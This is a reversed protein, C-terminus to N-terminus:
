SCVTIDGSCLKRLNGTVYGGLDLYEGYFISNEFVRLRQQEKLALSSTAGM